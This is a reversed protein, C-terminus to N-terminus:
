VETCLNNYNRKFPVSIVFMEVFIWIYFHQCHVANMMKDYAIGHCHNLIFVRKPGARLLSFGCRVHLLSFYPMNMKSNPFQQHDYCLWVAEMMCYFENSSPLDLYYLDIDISSLETCTRTTTEALWSTWRERVVGGYDPAARWKYSWSKRLHM